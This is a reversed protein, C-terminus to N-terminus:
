GEARRFSNVSFKFVQRLIYLRPNVSQHLLVLEPEIPGNVSILM